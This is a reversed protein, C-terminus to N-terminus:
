YSGSLSHISVQPLGEYGDPLTGTIKYERDETLHMYNDSLVMDIDTEIEVFFAPVDSKLILSLM